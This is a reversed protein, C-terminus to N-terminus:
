PPTPIYFGPHEDFKQDIILNARQRALTRLAKSTRKGGSSFKALWVAHWRWAGNYQWSSDRKGSDHSKGSAHRAEHVLTGAREPVSREYFFPLFLETYGADRDTGAVAGGGGCSAVLEVINEEVYRQAWNLFDLGYGENWWDEASYNLCWIAALARGFPRQNDNPRSFGFEGEWGTPNFAHHDSAWQIFGKTSNVRAGYLADGSAILDPVVGTCDPM